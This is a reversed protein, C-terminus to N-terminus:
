NKASSHTKNRIRSALQQVEVPKTNQLRAKIDCRLADAAVLLPYDELAKNSTISQRYANVALNFNNTCKRYGIEILATPRVPEPGEGKLVIPSYDAERLAFKDNEKPAPVEYAEIDPYIGYIQNTHPPKIKNGPLYFRAVTQARHLGIHGQWPGVNQITGKGFSREGVLLAREHDQLSGALIESASASNRNILIMLPLDTALDVNSILPSVNKDFGHVSAVEQGPGLFLGVVCVAEDIIGGGNNRVDLILAKIKQKSIMYRVTKQTEECVDDKMFSAIKIYGTSMEVGDVEINLTKSSVNELKLNVPNLTFSKIESGRKVRLSLPENKHAKVIKEVEDLTLNTPDTNNVELIVDNLRVGNKFAPGERILSKVALKSRIKIFAIGTGFYENENKYRAAEFVSSPEIWAHADEAMTLYTNYAEGILASMDKNKNHHSTVWEEIKLVPLPNEKLKSNFFSIWYDQRLNQSKKLTEYESVLDKKEDISNINKKSVIKFFGFDKEINLDSIKEEIDGSGSLWDSTTLRIAKDGQSLLYNITKICGLFKGSSESCNKQNLVEEIFNFRLNLHKWSDHNITEADHPIDLSLPAGLLMATLSFLILRRIMVLVYLLSRVM